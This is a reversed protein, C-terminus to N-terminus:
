NFRKYNFSLHTPKVRWFLADNIDQRLRDRPKSDHRVKKAM